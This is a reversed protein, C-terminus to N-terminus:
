RERLRCTATSDGQHARVQKGQQLTRHEGDDGSSCDTAAEGREAASASTEAEDGSAACRQKSVPLWWGRPRRRQPARWKRQRLAIQWRREARQRLRVVSVATTTAAAARKAAARRESLASSRQCARPNRAATANGGSSSSAASRPKGGSSQSRQLRSDGRRRELLARAILRKQRQSPLQHERLQSKATRRWQARVQRQLRVSRTTTVAITAATPPSQDLWRLRSRRQGCACASLVCACWVGHCRLSLSRRQRDNSIADSWLQM